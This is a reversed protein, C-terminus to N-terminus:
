GRKRGNTRPQNITSERRGLSSTWSEDLTSHWGSKNPLWAPSKMDWSSRVWPRLLLPTRRTWPRGQRRVTFPTPSHIIMFYLLFQLHFCFFINQTGSIQAARRGQDYGVIQLTSPLNLHGPIVIPGSYEYHLNSFVRLIARSKAAVDRALKLCFGALLDRLM